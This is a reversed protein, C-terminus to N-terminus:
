SRVRRELIAGRTGIVVVDDGAIATIRPHCTCPSTRYPCGHAHEIEVYTVSGPGGPLNGVHWADLIRGNYDNPNPTFPEFM